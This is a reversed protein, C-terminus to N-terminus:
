RLTTWWPLVPAILKGLGSVDFKQPLQWEKLDRLIYLDEMIRILILILLGVLMADFASKGQLLNFVRFALVFIVGLGNRFFSCRWGGELIKQRWSPFSSAAAFGIGTMLYLLGLISLPKIDSDLQSDTYSFDNLLQSNHICVVLLSTM